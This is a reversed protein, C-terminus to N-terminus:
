ITQLSHQLVRQSSRFVLYKKKCIKIEFNITKRKVRNVMASAKQTFDICRESAVVRQNGRQDWIQKEPRRLISRVQFKSSAYSDQVHQQEFFKESM